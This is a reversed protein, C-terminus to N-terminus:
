DSRSPGEDTGGEMEEDGLPAVVEVRVKGFGGALGSIAREIGEAANAQRVYWARHATTGAFSYVEVFSKTTHDTPDWPFVARSEYRATIEIIHDGLAADLGHFQGWTIIRRDKPALMPIGSVLPGKEMEKPPKVKEPDMGFARDPLERSTSFSVNYAPGGGVNEIVLTIITPRDLDNTAYVIVSPDFSRRLLFYSITVGLVSVMVLGVTALLMGLESTM